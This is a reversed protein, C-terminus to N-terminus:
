GRNKRRPRYSESDEEPEVKETETIVNDVYYSDTIIVRHKNIDRILKMTEKDELLKDAEEGDLITQSNGGAIVLPNEFGIPYYIRNGEVAEIIVKM